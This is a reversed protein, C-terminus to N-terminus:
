GSGLCDCAVIKDKLESLMWSRRTYFFARSFFFTSVEQSIEVRPNRERALQVLEQQIRLCHFLDFVGVEGVDCSRFIFKAGLRGKRYKIDILSLCPVYGPRYGDILDDPHFVSMSLSSSQPTESFCDLIREIQDIGTWDNTGPKRFNFSQLRGIYSPKTINGRTRVYARRAKDYGLCFPKENSLVGIFSCFRKREEEGPKLCLLVDEVESMDSKETSNELCLNILQQYARLLSTEEIVFAM